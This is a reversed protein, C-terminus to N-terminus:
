CGWTLLGSIYASFGAHSPKTHQSSNTLRCTGPSHASGNFDFCACNLEGCRAECAGMTTRASWMPPGPHCGVCFQGKRSSYNPDGRLAAAAAAAAAITALVIIAKM